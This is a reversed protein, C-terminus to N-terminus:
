LTQFVGLEKNKKVNSSSFYQGNMVIYVGPSLTQVYALATGINFTSDSAKLMHPIFAGTLVITKSVNEKAIERATEIMTDTGHTIVIRSSESSICANVIKKREAHTMELSDVLMLEFIELDGAFRSKKIISPIVSKKLTLSGQKESYTKDITGGTIFLSIGNM